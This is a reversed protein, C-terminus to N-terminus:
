ISVFFRLSTKPITIAIILMATTAPSPANNTFKPVFQNLPKTLGLSHIGFIKIGIIQVTIYKVNATISQIQIFFSFKGRFTIARSIVFPTSLIKHHKTNKVSLWSNKPTVTIIRLRIKATFSIRSIELVFSIKVRM